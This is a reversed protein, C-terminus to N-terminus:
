VCRFFIISFRLKKRFFRVKKQFKKKGNKRYFDSLPTERIDCIFNYGSRVGGEGRFILFILKTCIECFKKKSMKQNFHVCPPGKVGM